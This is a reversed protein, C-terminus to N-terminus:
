SLKATRGPEHLPASLLIDDNLWGNLLALGNTLFADDCSLGSEEALLSLLASPTYSQEHLHNLLQFTFATLQMFRVKDNRDRWM